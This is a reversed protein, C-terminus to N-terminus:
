RCTESTSDHDWDVAIRCSTDAELNVTRIKSQDDTFVRITHKGPKLRLTKPAGVRPGGDVQVFGSPWASVNLIAIESTDVGANKKPALTEDSEDDPAAVSQAHRSKAATKKTKKAPKEVVKTEPMAPPDEAVIAAVSPMEEAKETPVAAPQAVVPKVEVPEQKVSLDIGAPEPQKPAPPAVAVTPAPVPAANAVNKPGLQLVIAAIVGAVAAATLVVLPWKSARPTTVSAVSHVSSVTGGHVSALEEHGLPFGNPGVGFRPLQPARQFMQPMALLTAMQAAQAEAPTQPAAVVAPPESIVPESDRAALAPAETTPILDDVIISRTEAVSSPSSEFGSDGGNRAIFSPVESRSVDSDSGRVRRPRAELNDVPRPSSARRAPTQEQILSRTFLTVPRDTVMTRPGSTSPAGPQAAEVILAALDSASERWQNTFCENKLADIMHQMRQYRERPDHALAKMCIADLGAPVSPKVIRPPVVSIEGREREEATVQRGFPHAGTILEYLVVGLAFVDSAPSLPEGRAQEPAMYAWKGEVIGWAGGERRAIGFDAVRVEGSTTLLLNSPSIDAHIIAGGPRVHAFELGAAASQVIYSAVGLPLTKTGRAKLLQRLSPGDVFDMVLFVDENVRALDIVSVVNGHTWGVLLKAEQILREVFVTDNALEPLLRKIAVPKQFGHDGMSHGAFVEAMGGRGLLDGLVYRGAQRGSNAPRAHRTDSTVAM